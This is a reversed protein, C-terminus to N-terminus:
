DIIRDLKQLAFVEHGNELKVKSLGVGILQAGNWGKNNQLKISEVNKHVFKVKLEGCFDSGYCNLVLFSEDDIEARREFYYDVDSSNLEILRMLENQYAWSNKDKQNLIENTNEHCGPQDCSVVVLVFLSFIAFIKMRYFAEFCVLFM